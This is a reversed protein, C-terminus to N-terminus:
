SPGVYLYYIRPKDIELPFDPPLAERIQDTGSPLYMNRLLGLGRHGFLTQPLDGSGRSPQVPNVLGAVISQGEGGQLDFLPKLIRALKENFIRFVETNVDVLDYDSIGALEAAKDVADTDSGIADVLGLRVAEMGPYILANLLEERSMQLKDGRETVVIQVFAHKVQDTAAVFHRRNSGRKFPGTTIVQEDPQSPLLPGPFSLVVGISGVFSTPKAYTYNAGMSMMYGGSAVIDNMSVVVPKKERFRRLEQFLSESAAAGGGPSSLKIVVGKIDDRDRAYELFSTIVFASDDTIVTFPIDIIGIKPKGPYVHFFVAYGVGVGVGVVLLLSLTWTLSLRNVVAVM